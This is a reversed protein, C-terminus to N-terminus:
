RKMNVVEELISDSVTVIRTNAQFGRQSIILRTFEETLDVNSMELTAGIIAGSGGELAAQINPLGSNMTDRFTSDGLKELGAPNAFQALAVRYLPLNQGNTFNGVITGDQSVTFNNLIGMPYGDQFFAVTTNPSAFQTIGEGSGFGNFDLTVNANNRGLLSFPIEITVDLPSELRGCPAFTIIGSPVSGEFNGVLEPNEPFFAEWRWTNETLKKFQVELTYPDGQCDFINFKTQRAEGMILTNATIWAGNGANAAADGTQALLSRGTAGTGPLIFRLDFPLGDHDDALLVVGPPTTPIDFTGDANVNLSVEFPGLMDGTASQGWITAILPSNALGSTEDFEMIFNYTTRVGDDDVAIGSFSFYNMNQTVNTQFVTAGITDDENVARLVLVGTQNNFDAVYYRGSGDVLEFPEDFEEPLDLLPRGDRIGIMNFNIAFPDEGTDPIPTFSFTLYNEVYGDTSVAANHHTETTLNFRNDGISITAGSAGGTASGFAVNDPFGIPLFPPTNSNLNCRLGVVTTGRPDMKSGLPINIDSTTSDMIFNMPNMPDRMMEFGQVRFGTGSHVLDFQADLTFNGARSFIQSGGDRFVFFGDGQIMMDTRNGTFQM